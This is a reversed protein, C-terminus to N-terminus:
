SSGRKGATMALVARVAAQFSSSCVINGAGCTAALARIVPVYSASGEAQQQKACWHVCGISLGVDFGLLCGEAGALPCVSSALANNDRKVAAECGTACSDPKRSSVWAISVLALIM